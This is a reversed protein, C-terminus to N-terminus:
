EWNDFTISEVLKVIRYKQKPAAKKEDELLKRAGKKDMFKFGNESYYITQPFGNNVKIQVFYSTSKM